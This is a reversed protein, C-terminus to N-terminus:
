NTSKEEYLNKIAQNMEKDSVEGLALRLFFDDSTAAKCVGCQCYGLMACMGFLKRKM